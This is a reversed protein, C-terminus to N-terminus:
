GNAHSHSGDSGDSGDSSDGGGDDESNKALPVGSPPIALSGWM